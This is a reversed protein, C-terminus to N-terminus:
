KWQLKFNLDTKKTKEKKKISFKEGDFAFSILSDTIVEKNFKESVIGEKKRTIVKIQQNNEAKFIWSEKLFRYGEDGWSDSLDIGNEIKNKKKNWLYLQLLSEDYESFQRTLLATFNTDIEFKNVAYLHYSGEEYLNLYEFVSKDFIQKYKKVEIIKGKFPTKSPDGDIDNGRSYVHLKNIEITNFIM